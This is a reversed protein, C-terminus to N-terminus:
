ELGAAKKGRRTKINVEMMREEKSEDSEEATCHQLYQPVM